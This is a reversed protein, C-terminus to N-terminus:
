QGVGAAGGKGRMRQETANRKTEAERPTGGGEMKESKRRGCVCVCVCEGPVNVSDLM